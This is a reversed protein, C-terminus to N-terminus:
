RAFPAPGGFHDHLATRAAYVGCMGHVGAGPPTSSSCLYVGEVPVRYPNWALVPRLVTQYFSAVGGGIDGGVYNPDYASMGRATMATRDLVLDSFGPAFREVQAEIAPTMDRDSGAPVHCYGWLTEGTTGARTRDAVGAQVVICYPRDPHRDAWVDAEASAVESATGGLHLTGASRCVAATWPVPGSLAWDVKCVGPGHRFRGVARRYADPLAPGILGPLAAPAVDLLVIDAEPLEALHGIWRGTEVSGGLRQLEALLADVIGVSGGAVVPWGVAHAAATLLLAVGATAPASLPRTAHAGAGALLARAPGDAFRATLRELSRMGDRGFRAMTTPHRPVIRLPALVGAALDGAHAVLPGLLRRYAVGDPGLADATEDVSRHAVVAAGGDLPHAFPVGPQLLDGRLGDFAPDAFFPSLALLPHAASCVDHSFGSLTREETRCGGGPRDAGEVVHVALGARALTVAAALGNPGSGVVVADHRTM